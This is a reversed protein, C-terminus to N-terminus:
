EGKEADIAELKSEAQEHQIKLDTQKRFQKSQRILLQKLSREIENLRAEIEKRRKGTFLGKLNNLEQELATKEEQLSKQEAHIEDLESTLQELQQALEAKQNELKARREARAREEAAKREAEQRRAEEEELATIALQCQAIRDASDKYDSICQFDRIVASYRDPSNAASQQECVSQYFAERKQEAAAHLAAVKEESAKLHAEYAEAKKDHQEQEVRKAYEIRKKMTDTLGRRLKRLREATEGKAFRAARSFNRNLDFHRTEEELMKQLSEVDSFYGRNAYHFVGRIEGESLFGPLMYREAAQHIRTKDEPIKKEARASKASTHKKIYDADTRCQEEALAFGLYAEACEADLALTQDYFEKAKDFEGDELALDGRKLAAVTKADAESTVHVTQAPAAAEPQKKGLIKEVGRVLDQMAGGKGMDQAALKNFEKPMDYADIDKFVPILTKKQGAAILALFRSWENKVWVANFHDYDTGVVLMVKASQLAAFIYPEYETGLKDELSIRSFFVRYGKNTLETYIDQAIVSDLTRDGDDTLEKYSIFIDYPEEKSSVEIIGKRLEEIAKAEERYVRRAIADANECAQEFNEDEFISEFSSRHCTPVKKGTAPDDVYEIGFKCLVLGWYAEAEDPFEAVISEYVGYAKDFECARLLKGARHFLSLMKESDASPVTQRTGCYECECVTSDSVLELDGGCMKCKIIAM